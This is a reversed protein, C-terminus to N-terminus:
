FSDYFEKVVEEGSDLDMIRVDCDNNEFVISAARCAFLLNKYTQGFRKFAFEYNEKVEIQFM